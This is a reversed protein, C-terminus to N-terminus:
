NSRRERARIVFSNAVQRNKKSATENQPLFARVYEVTAKEDTVTVRVHGSPPLFDGRIYGYEEVNRVRDSGPHGPQPVMVYRVDDLEQNAYFHDHGHFVVSVNNKVLLQHIPAEWGPRKEKFHDKNDKGKGGWEYLIAAESGGRANEDLGGVLHHLFVFKYKAKSGALTKALWDYQDKGLTRIWNGEPNNRGARPSYWFPDLAVFLADGWEWAFYNELRGIHKMETKNGTYFGDPTPNPFMRKRKLCSWVSICEPTGDYGDRKEGDHNGLVLFLPASHAIKGFYYRQAVYQPYAAKYDKGYKDTMFTDGIDIHFDPKDASANAITREYVAPRTNQDLHSDSQITFVFSNGPKRQTHFSREEDAKFEKEGEERTYLRYFYQSNAGLGKLVFEVPEGKKLRREDTRAELKGSTPGYSIRASMEKYALVSVTVSQDTPRALIVDFPHAPPLGAFVHKPGGKEGKKDQGLLPDVQGSSLTVLVSIFLGACAASSRRLIM